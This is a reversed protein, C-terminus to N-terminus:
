TFYLARIGIFLLLSALIRALIKPSSKHSAAVGFRSVFVISISAVLLVGYHIYGFTYEPLGPKHWGNIIYGIVASLSALTMFLTSTGVAKPFPVNLFLIILPILMSGGGIGLIGSIFSVGFGIAVAKLWFNEAPVEDDTYSIQFVLVYIGILSVIMGFLKHLIIPDWRSAALAGFQAGVIGSIILAIAINKDFSGRKTHALTSSFAAVATVALSTGSAMPTALELPIGHKMFLYLLTPVLFVGGGIGFLGTLFGIFGGLLLLEVLLITTFDM